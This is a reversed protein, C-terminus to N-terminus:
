RGTAARPAAPGGPPSVGRRLGTAGPRPSPVDAPVWPLRGQVLARFADPPVAASWHFGQGFAAGEAVLRRVDDATEVGEAVVYLDLRGALGLVAAVVAADATGRAMGRVFSQDIKLADLPLDRLLALSSYGTGFDDLLVGFGHRRAWALATVAGGLDGIVANETIELAIGTAPVAAVRAAHVLREVITAVAQDRVGVNLTIRFGEPVSPALDRRFAFVQDAMERSLAPLLGAEELLPLFRAPLLVGQEPHVWRTLAEAGVVAGTALDVIPQFWAVIQGAALADRLETEDSVRQRLGARLAQDFTAVDDRGADKARYLAADAHRLLDTARDEPDTNLALGISVTSTVRQGDLVLPRGLDRRVRDAIREAEDRGAVEGLLVTFEDGGPRAAVDGARLCAVLREALEVLLRDGTVHGLAENVTKFRDVDIVLLAARGPEAGDLVAQAGALFADRNALGTLGDHTARHELRANAAGLEAVLRRATLEGALARVTQAHQRHRGLLLCGLYCLALAALARPLDTAGTAILLADLGFAPLMLPLFVGVPVTSSLLLSTTAGTVWVQTLYGLGAHGADRVALTALPLVAGVAVLAVSLVARTVRGAGDPRDATRHAALAAAAALWGSVATAAAWAALRRHDAGGTWALAVLPPAGLPWGALFAALARLSSRAVADRAQALDDPPPTSAAQM